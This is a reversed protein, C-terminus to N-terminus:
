DRRWEYEILMTYVDQHGHGGPQHQRGGTLPGPQLREIDHENVIAVKARNGSQGRVM